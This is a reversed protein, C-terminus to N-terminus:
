SHSKKHAGAAIFLLCFILLVSYEVGGAQHGVVFWGNAAHVLIIGMLLESMFFLALWQRLIGLALLLGGIIEVITLTWATAAGAPFGKSALFEGFGNVTGSYLRIGGHAALLLATVVRLMISAVAASLFPFQSMSFTKALYSASFFRM